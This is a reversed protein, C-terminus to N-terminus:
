REESRSVEVEVMAGGLVVSGTRLMREDLIAGAVMSTEGGVASGALARWKSLPLSALERGRLVVGRSPGYLRVILSEDSPFEQLLRVLDAQSRAVYKEPAREQDWDTFAQVSGAMVLLRDGRVWPPIHLKLARLEEGGQLHRLRVRVALSDGPRVVAREM